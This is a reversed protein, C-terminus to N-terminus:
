SFGRSDMGAFVSLTVGCPTEGVAFTTYDIANESVAFATLAACAASMACSVVLRSRM